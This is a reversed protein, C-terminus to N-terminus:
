QCYRGTLQNAIFVAQLKPNYGTASRLDVTIVYHM